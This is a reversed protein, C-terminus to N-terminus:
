PRYRRELRELSAKAEGTQRAGPTGAALKTLLRRAEPTAIHELAELVRVTRIWGAEEEKEIRSLLKEIHRRVETSLDGQLAQRALPEVAPGLKELKDDAKQRIDFEDSDLDGLVRSFQEPLDAAPTTAPKIHQQFLPLAQRPSAALTWVASHAKAADEGGLDTWLDNIEKESLLKASTPGAVDWVLITTDESGSALRRGDPSFAFTHVPGAHGKFTARRGGTATEWLSVTSDDGAAALARGDPSFAVRAIWHLRALVNIERLLKGTAADYLTVSPSMGAAALVKGDPSVAVTWVPQHPTPMERVVKGTTTDWMRLAGDRFGGSVVTKSDPSLAAACPWDQNLEIKHQEKGTAVDWLRITHDPRCVSALKKGDASLSVSEINSTHGKFARVEKGTALDFQHIDFGCAFLFRRDPSLELDAAGGSPPKGLERLPKCTALDWEYIPNGPNIHSGSFLTRGDGAFTLAVVSQPHGAFSHALKLTGADWLDLTNTGGGSTAVYKGDPSVTLHKMCRYGADMKRLMKGSETDWMRLESAGISALRKGDPLYCLARQAFGHPAADFESLKKGTAPDWTRISSGQGSTALMKGDPSFTVAHVDGPSPRTEGSPGTAAQLESVVPFARVQKGTAVDWIRVHPDDWGGSALTKGNPAFAFTTVNGTHGELTHLKKRSIVDWLEIIKGQKEYRLAVTKGDPAFALQKVFDEKTVTWEAIAEGTSSNWLHVNGWSGTALLKGDASLAVSYVGRQDPPLRRLEKGTAVDWVVVHGCMDGVIVTKNDRSFVACTTNGAHRQRVTGLRLLAGDPLPDGYRDTKTQQKEGTSQAAPQPTEDAQEGVVTLQYGFASAALALLALALGAKMRTTALAKLGEETLCAVNASIGNPGHIAARVTTVALLAPISATAPQGLAAAFLAASLTVGRRLLRTGLLKRGQELRRELTRLSWGLQRAAEDRTMSELYCLVLPARYCQALRGLEEDLLACFERWSAESSPDSPPSPARDELAPAGGEHIRRRIADSKAKLALRHAVGHLWSSLSDRKRISGAKRALVLFTAQFVDEAAQDSHLVRRCVGLVMPGHRRVLTAFAAEDRGDAFRQLCDGDSQEGAHERGALARVHHLLVRTSAEAM